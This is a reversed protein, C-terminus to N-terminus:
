SSCSEKKDLFDLAEILSYNNVLSYIDPFNPNWGENQYLLKLFTAGVRKKKYTDIYNIGYKFRFLKKDYRFYVM